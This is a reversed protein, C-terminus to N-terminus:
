LMALLQHFCKRLNHHLGSLRQKSPIAGRHQHLLFGQLECGTSAPLHCAYHPDLQPTATMTLCMLLVRGCIRDSAPTSLETLRTLGKYVVLITTPLNQGMGAWGRVMGHSSKTRSHEQSHLHHLRSTIDATCGDHKHKHLCLMPVAERRQESNAERMPKAAYSVYVYHIDGFM